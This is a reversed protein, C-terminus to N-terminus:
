RTAASRKEWTGDPAQRWVALEHIRLRQAAPEFDIEVQGLAQVAAITLPRRVVRHAASQTAVHHQEDLLLFAVGHEAAPTFAWDPERAVVWSAPPAISWDADAIPIVRRISM